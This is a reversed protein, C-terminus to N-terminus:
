LWALTSGVTTVVVHSDCTHNRSEEVPQSAASAILFWRQTESFLLRLWSAARGIPNRSETAALALVETKESERDKHSILCWFGRGMQFTDRNGLFLYKQSEAQLTVKIVICEACLDLVPSLVAPNISHRASKQKFELELKRASHNWFPQRMEKLEQDGDQLLLFHDWGWQAKFAYLEDSFPMRGFLPLTLPHPPHPDLM